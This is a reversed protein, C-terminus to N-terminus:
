IRRALRALALKLDSRPLKEALDEIASRGVTGVCIQKPPLPNDRIRAQVQLHIGTVEYGRQRFKALIRPAMHKLKAAVAGNDAYLTLEGAKLLVARVALGDPLIQTIVTQLIALQEVQRRLPRFDPHDNLLVGVRTGSM